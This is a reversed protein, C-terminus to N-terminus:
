KLRVVQPSIKPPKSTIRKRKETIRVPKKRPPRAQVEVRATKEYPQQTVEKWNRFPFRIGAAMAPTMDNLSMHPRFFNYHVLWGDTFKKLTEKNRLARMVKTRSKLTGHFREIFNNSSGIDFPSGQRHETDAGFTLEIGELYSKLKDTYVIRPIKGARKAAKEMLTQADKISRTQTAHSALLFRTKSDIIDWFVVWKAKRSKDYPNDVGRGTQKDIRIYTEDAIWVDGVKPTYKDAEKVAHDTFREIWNFITADSVYDNHQQILNRRIELLSMGEYYMNLADAVKFTEYQMKPITDIGTFKRNCAKCYYYQNDKYKGYKIVNESECYKCNINEKGM